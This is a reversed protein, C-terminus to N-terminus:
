NLSRARLARKFWVGLQELDTCSLVYRREHETVPIGHFELVELISEAKAKAEIELPTMLVEDLVTISVPEPIDIDLTQRMLDVIVRPHARILSHVADHLSADDPSYSMGAVNSIAM